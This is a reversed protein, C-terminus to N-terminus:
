QLRQIQLSFFEIYPHDGIHNIHHTMAHDTSTAEIPPAHDNHVAGITTADIRTNHGQIAETPIMIVPATISKFILNHDPNAEGTETKVPTDQVQDTITVEPFNTILQQPEQLLYITHIICSLAM